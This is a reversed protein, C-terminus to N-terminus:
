GTRTGTVTSAPLRGAKATGTMTDGDVRVTFFLTLRLPRTVSQTWTVREGGAEEVAKVDILDVQEHRSRAVGVSYGDRQSLQLEVPLTGIPTRISM